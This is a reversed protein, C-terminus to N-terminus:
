RTGNQLRRSEKLEEQLTLKSFIDKGCSCYWQSKYDGGVQDAMNSNVTALRMPRKCDPCPRRVRTLVQQEKLRRAKESVWDLFEDWSIGHEDLVFKINKCDQISAFSFAELIKDDM